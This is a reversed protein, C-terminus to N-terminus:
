NKKEFLEMLINQVKWFEEITKKYREADVMDIVVEKGYRDNKSMGTDLIKIYYFNELKDKDVFVKFKEKKM